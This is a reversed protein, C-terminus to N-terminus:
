HAGGTAPPTAKPGGQLSELFVEQLSRRSERLEVVYGGAEQAARFVPATGLGAPLALICNGETEPRLEMGLRAAAEQFRAFDGTVRAHYLRRERARLSEISGFRRLEGKEIVAVQSCVQEVDHLLHTALILHIGREQVIERALDIMERHAKPDLGNTPEDLFLLKPSHVISQALKVKQKMGTSYSEVPRYREDGLGVWHSAEHARQRAERMPLGALEAAFQISRVGSMSPFLCDREPMYGVGRRIALGQNSLDHGLIKGGGGDPKLLGLIARILTSKGAGNPGLLGMAGGEFQLTFNSLATFSGYRVTLGELSLIMFVCNVALVRLM